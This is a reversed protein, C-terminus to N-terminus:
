RDISNRIVQVAVCSPGGQTIFAPSLPHIEFLASPFIKQLIEHVQAALQPAAHTIYIRWNDGVGHAQLAKGVYQIAQSFSRRVTAITLQRGDETQPLVPALKAAQGVYSVLPSLRGGRRLYGFDAPILDSKGTDM